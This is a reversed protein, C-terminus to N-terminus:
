YVITIRSSMVSNMFVINSYKPLLTAKTRATYLTFNVAPRTLLWPPTTSISSTIVNSKKFGVTQLDGSVRIALPPLQTPKREFVSHFKSNFVTAYAPNNYNSSLKLCYQLSLKKRRFYADNFKSGRMFQIRSFNQLCGLMTQTTQPLRM